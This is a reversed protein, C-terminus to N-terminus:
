YVFATRVVRLAGIMGPRNRWASKVTFLDFLPTTTVRLAAREEADRVGTFASGM